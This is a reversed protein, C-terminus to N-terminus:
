ETEGNLNNDIDEVYLYIRYGDQFLSTDDYKKHSNVSVAFLHPENDSQYFDDDVGKIHFSLKNWREDVEFQEIIKQKIVTLYPSSAFYQKSEYYDEKRVLATYIKM